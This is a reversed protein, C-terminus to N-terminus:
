VTSKNNENKTRDAKWLLVDRMGRKYKEPLQSYQSPNSWAQLNYKKALLSLISQDERHAYYYTAEPNPNKLPKFAEISCCRELWEDVFRTSFSSKKFACFTSSIQASEKYKNSNCNMIDFALQKTFKKEKLPHISAM